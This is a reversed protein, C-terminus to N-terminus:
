DLVSRNVDGSIVRFVVDIKIESVLSMKGRILIINLPTGVDDFLALPIVTLQLPRANAHGM